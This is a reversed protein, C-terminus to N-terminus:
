YYELLIGCADDRSKFNTLNTSNTDEYERLIKHAESLGFNIVFETLHHWSAFVKYSDVLRAFGDTTLLIKDGKSHEFQNETVSPSIHANRSLVSAGSHSDIYSWRRNIIGNVSDGHNLGNGDSLLVAARENRAFQSNQLLEDKGPIYITIDGIIAISTTNGTVSVIGCSCAPPLASDPFNLNHLRSDVHHAMSRILALPSNQKSNDRLYTDLEAAIWEAGTAHHDYTWKGAVDTAGDIAWAREHIAGARDENVLGDGKSSIYDIARLRM